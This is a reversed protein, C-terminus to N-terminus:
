DRQLPLDIVDLSAGKDNQVAAGSEVTERRLYGLLLPKGLRPSYVASTLHGAPKSANDAAFLETGPPYLTSLDLRGALAAAAAQLGPEDYNNIEEGFADAVAAAERPLDGPALGALMRNVHGRHHLRALTEQGRFCGKTYSIAHGLRCEDPFNDDDFDVGYWPLGHEVRCMNWAISGVPLGDTGRIGQVVYSWMREIASSAMLMHYGGMGTVNNRMVYVDIDGFQRPFAQLHEKPFPGKEFFRWMADDLKVGELAIIGLAGSDDALTVDEMIIHKELVTKAEAVDGQSVLLLVDDERVFVFVEAIIKGKITTLLSHCGSHTDLASVDATLMANLFSVRDKGTARLISWHTLDLAGAYRTLSQYEAAPNVFWSPYEVGFAHAVRANDRRHASLLM